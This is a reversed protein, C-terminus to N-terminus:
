EAHPPESDNEDMQDADSQDDETTADPFEANASSDRMSPMIDRNTSAMASAAGDPREVVDSSKGPSGADAVVAANADSTENADMVALNEDVNMGILSDPNRSSCGGIVFAAAVAAALVGRRGLSAIARNTDAM